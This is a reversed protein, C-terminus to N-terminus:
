KVRAKLGRTGMDVVTELSPEYLGDPNSDIWEFSNNISLAVEVVIDKTENGTIVLPTEFAGTVLCSGLPIPSVADLPNPVTTTPAQGSQTISVPSSVHFAWYGQSIVDNVVINEGGVNFNTIYTKFGVFSAIQANLNLIGLTPENYIFDINYNQYGLSNRLYTYTGPTISSIPIKVMVEGDGIIIQQNFDIGTQGNHTHEEGRYIVTSSTPLSVVYNILELSHVGLLNFDPTQAANGSPINSPNGFNDERTGQEDFTYEFILMAEEEDKKCSLLTLSVGLFLIFFARFKMM